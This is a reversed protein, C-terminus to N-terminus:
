RERNGGDVKEHADVPHKKAKAKKRERAAVMERAQDATLVRKSKLGGKRGITALYKKIEPKVKPKGM